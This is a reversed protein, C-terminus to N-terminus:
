SKMVNIMLHWIATTSVLVSYPFLKNFSILIWFCIQCQSIVTTRLANNLNIWHKRKSNLVMEKWLIMWDNIWRDVLENTRCVNISSMKNELDFLHTLCLSLSSMNFMPYCLTKTQLVQCFLLKICELYQSEFVIIVDLATYKVIFNPWAWERHSFRNQKYASNLSFSCTGNLWM